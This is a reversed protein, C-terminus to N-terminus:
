MEEQSPLESLDTGLAELLEDLDENAYVLTAMCATDPRNEDALQERAATTCFAMISYGEQLPYEGLYLDMDQTGEEPDVLEGLHIVRFDADFRELNAGMMMDMMTQRGATAKMKISQIVPDQKVAKKFDSAILAAVLAPFGLGRAGELGEIAIGEKCQMAITISM